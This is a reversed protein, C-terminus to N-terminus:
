FGVAAALLTTGMQHISFSLNLLSSKGLAVPRAPCPQPSSSPPSVAETQHSQWWIATGGPPAICDGWGRSLKWMELIPIM